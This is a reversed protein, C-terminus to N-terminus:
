VAPSASTPAFSKALERLEGENLVANEEFGSLRLWDNVVGGGIVRLEGKPFAAAIRGRVVDSARGGLGRDPARFAPVVMVQTTFKQQAGATTLAVGPLCLLATALFRRRGAVGEGARM